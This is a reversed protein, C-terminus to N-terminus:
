VMCSGLKGAAKERMMHKVRTAEAEVQKKHLKDSKTHLVKNQKTKAKEGSPAGTDGAVINPRINYISRFSTVASFSICIIHSM